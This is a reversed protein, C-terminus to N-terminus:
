PQEVLNPNDALQVGQWLRVWWPGLSAQTQADLPVGAAAEEGPELVVYGVEGPMVFHLRERALRAVYAPDQLRRQRQELEKIGLTFRAIDSKMSNLQTRQAILTQMPEAITLLAVTLVMLFAVARGNPIYRRRKM